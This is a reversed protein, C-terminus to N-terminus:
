RKLLNLGLLILIACMLCFIADDKTGIAYFYVSIGGVVYVFVSIARLMLSLM